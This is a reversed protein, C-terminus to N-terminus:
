LNIKIIDDHSVPSCGPVIEIRTAIVFTLGIASVRWRQGDKTFVADIKTPVVKTDAIRPTAAKYVYNRKTPKRNHNVLLDKM